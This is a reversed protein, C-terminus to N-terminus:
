SKERQQRKGPAMVRVRQYLGHLDESLMYVIRMCVEPDKRLFEMLAMREIYAVEVSEAAEATIQHPMGSMAETLGLVAGPGAVQFIRDRKPRMRFLLRVAGTEVLYIGDCPEGERFLLAYTEYQRRQTLEHLAGWPDTSSLNASTGAM